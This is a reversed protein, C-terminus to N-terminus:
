LFCFIHNSKFITLYKSPTIHKLVIICDLKCVITECIILYHNQMNCVCNASYYSFIKVYVISILFMWWLQFCKRWVLVCLSSSLCCIFEKDSSNLVDVLHYHVIRTKYVSVTWEWVGLPLLLSARTARKQEIRVNITM